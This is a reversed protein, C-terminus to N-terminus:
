GIVGFEATVTAQPGSRRLPAGWVVGLGLERYRGRLLIRRHPPSHMWALVIGHPSAGGGTGWALTEGVLWPLADSLYGTQGIRQAPDSGSPARHAFYRHRVMDRSHRRAALALRPDVRLARLGHSGREANITCVTARAFVSATVTGPAADARACAVADARPASALMAVLSAAALGAAVQRFPSV